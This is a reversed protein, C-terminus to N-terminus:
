GSLARQFAMSATRANHSHRVTEWAKATIRTVYEADFLLKLIAQSLAPVNNEDVVCAFGRERAYRAIYSVKPAHVLIPRGSLMYECTKGPSSTRILDPFMTDFSLGLFLIDASRQVAPMDGPLGSAFRVRATEVIRLDELFRREHPTYLYLEIDLERLAEVARVLNRVAGIQAWGITGTFVIRYRGAHAPRLPPKTQQDLPVSNPVVSVERGYAARYYEALEDCMAFIRHASHFLRPELVRALMPYPRPLNNGRYLDYFFLCLPIRTLKHLLYASLLAPGHDSYALLLGIRHQRILSRGRRIANFPLFFASASHYLLRVGGFRRLLNKWQLFREESKGGCHAKGLSDFFCYEAPLRNADGMQNARFGLHTTLIVISGEPFHRLVNRAMLPAGGISPPACTSVVLIRPLAGAGAPADASPGLPSLAPVRACAAADSPSSM